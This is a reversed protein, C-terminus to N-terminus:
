WWSPYIISLVGLRLKGTDPSFLEKHQNELCCSIPHCACSPVPCWYCPYSLRLQLDPKLKFGLHICLPHHRPDMSSINVLRCLSPMSGIRNQLTKSVDMRLTWSSGMIKNTTWIEQPGYTQYKSPFASTLFILAGKSTLLYFIKLSRSIALFLETLTLHLPGTQSMVPTPHLSLSMQKLFDQDFTFHFVVSHFVACCMNLLNYELICIWRRIVSAKLSHACPAESPQKWFTGAYFCVCVRLYICDM